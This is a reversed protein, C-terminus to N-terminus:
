LSHSRSVKKSYSGEYSEVSKLICEFDAYFKFPVPIQKFYNKFEITGKELRVSHAGNIRLCAEKHETLVNKSSFFQLCSKCFYKKNKNKTKHFIFRDFDKIHVYHSKNEDIVLLLYMSNEIKQDSIYVPFTLKNEYCFVNMCISNKTEIKSFDEKDVPFEIGDYDLYNALRTDKQKIREPHIKVLNIHRVSM